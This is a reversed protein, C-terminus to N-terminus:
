LSTRNAALFQVAERVESPANSNWTFSPDGKPHLPTGRRDEDQIRRVLRALVDYAELFQDEPHQNM